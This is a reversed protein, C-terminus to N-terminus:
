LSAMVEKLRDVRAKGSTKMQAILEEMRKKNDEVNQAQRLRSHQLIRDVTEKFPDLDIAITIVREQPVEDRESADKVETLQQSESVKTDWGFDLDDVVKAPPEDDSEQEEEEIIRPSNIAELREEDTGLSMNALRMEERSVDVEDLVALNKLGYILKLRYDPATACPNDQMSVNELSAPFQEIDIESILNGSVDLLKLERLTELGTVRSLLNGAVCLIRLQALEALPALCSISNHQLHLHTIHPWQTIGALSEISSRDLRIHTAKALMTACEEPSLDSPTPNNKSIMLSLDVQGKVHEGLVFKDVKKIASSTGGNMVSKGTSIRSSSPQVKSVPKIFTGVRSGASLNGITGSKNSAVSSVRSGSLRQTQSQSASSASSAVSSSSPTKLLVPISKPAAAVPRSKPAIPNSSTSSASVSKSITSSPPKSASLPAPKPKALLSSPKTVAPQPPKSISTRTANAGANTEKTPKKTAPFIASGPKAVKAPPPPNSRLM